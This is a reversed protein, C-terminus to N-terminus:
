KRKLVAWNGEMNLSRLLSKLAGTPMMFDFENTRYNKYLVILPYERKEVINAAMEETVKDKTCFQLTYSGPPLPVRITGESCYYTICDVHGQVDTADEPIKVAFVIATLQTM